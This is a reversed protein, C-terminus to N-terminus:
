LRHANTQLHAKQWGQKKVKQVTVAKAAAFSSVAAAGVAATVVWASVWAAASLVVPLLATAAPIQTPSAAAAPATPMPMAMPLDHSPMERWGSALSLIRVQKISPRTNISVAIM